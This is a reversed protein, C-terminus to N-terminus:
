QEVRRVTSGFIKGFSESLRITDGIATDYYTTADVEVGYVELTRLDRVMLKYEESSGSSRIVMATTINGNSDLGVVPMVNTERTDPKYAGDVITATYYTPEGVWVNDVGFLIGIIILALLILMLIMTLWALCTDGQKLDYFMDEFMDTM